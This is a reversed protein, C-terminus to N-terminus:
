VKIDGMDDSAIIENFLIFQFPKIEKKYVFGKKTLEYGTCYFYKEIFNKNQDNPILFSKIIEKAIEISSLQHHEGCIVAVATKNLNYAFDM